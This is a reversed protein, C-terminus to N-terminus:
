IAKSIDKIVQKQAKNSTDIKLIDNQNLMKRNIQYIEKYRRWDEIHRSTLEKQTYEVQNQYEISDKKLPKLEKNLIKRKIIRTAAVKPDCCLLVKVVKHNIPNLKVPLKIKDLVVAVKGEVIMGPQNLAKLSQLDIIQDWLRPYKSNQLM